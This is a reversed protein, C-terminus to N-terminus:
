IQDKDWYHRLAGLRKPNGLHHSLRKNCSRPSKRVGGQSPPQNGPSGLKGTFLTNTGETKGWSKLHLFPDPPQISWHHRHNLWDQRHLSAKMSVWFSFPGLSDLNTVPPPTPSSDRDRNYRWVWPHPLEVAKGYVKGQADRGDPEEETM